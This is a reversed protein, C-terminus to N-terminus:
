VLRCFSQFQSHKKMVKEGSKIVCSINKLVLPGDSSHSYCLDNFAISGKNPWGDPLPSSPPKTELSPEVELKGYAVVREPSVM